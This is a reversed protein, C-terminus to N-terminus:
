EKNGEKFHSYEEETFVQLSVAHLSGNAIASGLAKYVLQQRQVKSKNSFLSDVVTIQFHYGDGNVLVQSHPYHSQIHKVIDDNNM